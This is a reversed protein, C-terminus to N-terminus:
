TQSKPFRHELFALLAKNICPSNLYTDGAGVGADNMVYQNFVTTSNRKADQYSILVGSCSEHKKNLSEILQETEAKNQNIILFSSPLAIEHITDCLSSIALDSQRADDAAVGVKEIFDKFVKLPPIVLCVRTSEPASKQYFDQYFSANKKLFAHLNEYSYRGEKIQQYLDNMYTPMFAHILLATKVQKEKKLEEVKQMLCNFNQALLDQNIGGHFFIDIKQEFNASQLLQSGYSKVLALMHPKKDKNVGKLAPARNRLAELSKTHSILTTVYAQGYSPRATMGVLLNLESNKCFPQISEGKEMDIISVKSRLQEMSFSVTAFFCLFSIFIANFVFQSKM